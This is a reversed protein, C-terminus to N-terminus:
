LTYSSHVTLQKPYFHRVCVCSDFLPLAATRQLKEWPWAPCLVRQPGDASFSGRFGEILLVRVLIYLCSSSSSSSPLSISFSIFSLFSPPWTILVARESQNSNSKFTFHEAVFFLRWWRQSIESQRFMLLCLCIHDNINASLTKKQPPWTNPTTTEKGEKYVNSRKYFNIM